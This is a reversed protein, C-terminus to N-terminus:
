TQGQAFEATVSWDLKAPILGPSVVWSKGSDNSVGVEFVIVQEYTELNKGELRLYAGCSVTYRGPSLTFGPISLTFRYSGSRALDEINATDGLYSNIIVQGESDFFSLGYVLNRHFDNIDVEITFTLEESLDYVVGDTVPPHLRISKTHIIENGPGRNNEWLFSETSLGMYVETAQAMAGDFAVVGGKLVIGRKCLSKIVPMNHSVFLVTRGEKRSADDMKGICKKQFEADGVALVEDVILIEPELHAAVSFALRVYMGSSYRKVPTDIFAGIGSFEVIDDFRKQIDRKTLGMIAGNLFINERGTLEPHFGTGVELLSAMRGKVRVVGKTPTTVRSLIKLLTSKGAGNRGIVGITEGAEIDFTINQLAWFQDGQIREVQQVGVELRKNPDEKGRVRALFTQLERYLTRHGITGLRYQKSLNEVSIVKM